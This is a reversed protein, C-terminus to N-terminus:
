NILKKMNDLFNYVNKVIMDREKVIKDQTIPILFM